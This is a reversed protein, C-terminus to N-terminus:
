PDTAVVVRRKQHALFQGHHFNGDVIGSIYRDVVITLTCTGTGSFQGAPITATGADPTQTASWEAFSGTSCKHEATVTVNATTDVPTWNVVVADAGRSFVQNSTPTSISYAAPVVAYSNIADTQDSRYFEIYVTQGPVIAEFSTRYPEVLDSDLWWGVSNGGTLRRHQSGLDNIGDFLDGSIDGISALPQGISAILRDGGTLDLYQLDDGDYLPEAQKVQAEVALVGGSWQTIGLMVEVSETPINGSTTVDNYSCGALALLAASVVRPMTM